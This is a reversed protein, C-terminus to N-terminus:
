IRNVWETEPLLKRKRCYINQVTKNHKQPRSLLVHLLSPLVARAVPLFQKVPLLLCDRLTVWFKYASYMELFSRRSRTDRCDSRFDLWCRFNCPGLSRLGINSNLISGCLCTSSISALRCHRLVYNRALLIWSNFFSCHRNASSQLDQKQNTTRNVSWTRTDSTAIRSTLHVSVSNFYWLM